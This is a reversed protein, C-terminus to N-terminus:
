VLFLTFKYFDDFDDVPINTNKALYLISGVKEFNNDKIFTSCGFDGLKIIYKDLDYENDDEKSLSKIFINNPKIDRHIVGKLNISKLAKAVEIVIKKFLKKNEELGEGNENLYELLNTECDELEFIINNETELKRYFNVTYDSNCLKTIEEERKLQEMMLDYDVQQIVEKSIVKLICEKNSKINFARYIKSLNSEDEFHMDEYDDKYQALISSM